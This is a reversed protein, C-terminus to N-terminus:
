TLAPSYDSRAVSDAILLLHSENNLLIIATQFTHLTHM